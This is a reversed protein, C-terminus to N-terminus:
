QRKRILITATPSATRVRGFSYEVPRGEDSKVDYTILIHALMAKLETAAFFRGPCAHRGYGFVLHTPSTSIMHNKFVAHDANQELEERMRAFRFGDFTEPREYNEADHQVARGSTALYSGFPIFTGDSFRFGDKAVVPSSGNLRQSERIFSDVLHMSNLAAKTWGEQMIVREVEERMPQIHSPYTTLDFLVNVLAMTSTHIAAMNVILVRHALAPVTKDAPAADQMLWSILDNPKDPWDPGLKHRDAEKKPSMLPGIVPRIWHPFLSLIHCRKFVAITYRISINLYEQNRCLPLGVFLRNTTRAVVKMAGPLVAFPKWEEDKLSLVDDFACVIEDKVQPFCRALNRTLTTQVTHHHYPNDRIESGMMYSVQLTEDVGHMFSLVDERAAAVEAVRDAGNALYDWRFLRPIRFVGHRDRVYAQLILDSSNKIFRYATAYYSWLGDVEVLPPVPDAPKRTWLWLVTTGGALLIYLPPISTGPTPSSM